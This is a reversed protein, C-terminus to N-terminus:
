EHAQVMERLLKKNQIYDLIERLSWWSTCLSLIFKNLLKIFNEISLPIDEAGSGQVDLLTHEFFDDIKDQVEPSLKRVKM